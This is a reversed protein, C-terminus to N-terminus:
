RGSGAKALADRQLDLPQDGASIGTHGVNMDQDDWSPSPLALLSVPISLCTKVYSITTFSALPSTSPFQRVFGRKHSLPGPELVSSFRTTQGM